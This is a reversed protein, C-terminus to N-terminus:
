KLEERKKKKREIFHKTNRKPPFTYFIYLETKAPFNKDKGKGNRKKKKLILQSQKQNRLLWANSQHKLQKQLISLYVILLLTNGKNETPNNAEDAKMQEMFDNWSPMDNNSKNGKSTPLPIDDSVPEPEPQSPVPEPATETPQAETEKPATTKKAAAMAAKM